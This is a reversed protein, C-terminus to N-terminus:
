FKFILESGAFFLPDQAGNGSVPKIVQGWIWWQIGAGPYIYLTPVAWVSQDYGQANAIHLHADHFELPLGVSLRDNVVYGPELYAFARDLEAGTVTQKPINPATGRENFYLAGAVTYRGSAWSPEVLVAFGPDAANSYYNFAADASLAFNGFSGDFSLGGNVPAAGPVGGVYKLSPTLTMKENIPYVYKAFTAWQSTAVPNGATDTAGLGTAGTAVTWGSREFGVGRLAHEGVVLATRKNLYYNFYGTGNIIDGVHILTKSDYQWNLTAGDFKVPAWTNGAGQAPIAGDNMTTYLVANVTPSFTVTTTLDVELGTLHQPDKLKSGFNSAFDADVYGSFSLAPAAPPAAPTQAMSRAPAALAVLAATLALASSPAHLPRM